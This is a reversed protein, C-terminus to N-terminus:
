YTYYDWTKFVDNISSGYVKTPYRMSKIGTMTITQNPTINFTYEKDSNRKKSMTAVRKNQDLWYLRKFGPVPSKQIICDTDETSNVFTVSPIKEILQNIIRNVEKNYQIEYQKSKQISDFNPLLSSLIPDTLSRITQSIFTKLRRRTLVNSQFYISIPLDTEKFQHQLKLGTIEEFKDILEDNLSNIAERLTIQDDRICKYEYSLSQLEMKYQNQCKIFKKRYELTDNNKASIKINNFQPYEHLYREKMNYLDVLELQDDIRPNHVKMVVLEGRKHRKARGHNLNSFTSESQFKFPRLKSVLNNPLQDFAGDKYRIGSISAEWPVVLKRKIEDKTFVESSGNNSLSQGDTPISSNGLFLPRYGAFLGEMHVSGDSIYETSAVRPVLAMRSSNLEHKSRPTKVQISPHSMAKCGQKNTEELKHLPEGGVNSTNGSTSNHNSGIKGKAIVKDSDDKVRDEKSEVRKGTSIPRVARVCPNVNTFRKTFINMGNFIQKNAVKLMKFIPNKHKKVM